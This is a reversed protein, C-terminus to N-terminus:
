YVAIVHIEEYDNTKYIVLLEEVFLYFVSVYVPHGM